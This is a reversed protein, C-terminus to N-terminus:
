NTSVFQPKSFEDKSFNVQYTSGMISQNQNDIIRTKFTFNNANFVFSNPEITKASITTNQLVPDSIKAKDLTEKLDYLKTTDQDFVLINAENNNKDLVFLKNDFIGLKINMVNDVKNSVKRNNIYLGAKNGDKDSYIVVATINKGNLNIGEINYRSYGGKCLPGTIANYENLNFNFTCEESINPYPNVDVRQASSSSKTNNEKKSNNLIVITLIVLLGIILFMLIYVLILKAKEGKM